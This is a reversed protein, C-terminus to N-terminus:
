HVKKMLEIRKAVCNEVRHKYLESNQVTNAMGKTSSIKKKKDNVVLILVHMEPWHHEDVVQVAKSDEGTDMNGMEWHVFGGCMSRCASGSGQRAITSLEEKEIGYLNALTFM